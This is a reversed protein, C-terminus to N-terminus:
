ELNEVFSHVVTNGVACSHQWWFQNKEFNWRLLRKVVGESGPQRGKDRM